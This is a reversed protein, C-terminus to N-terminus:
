ARAATRSASAASTRTSRRGAPTSSSRCAASTSCCTRSTARARAHAPRGRRGRAAHEVTEARGEQEHRHRREPRAQDLRRLVPRRDARRGRRPRPREDNPIVGRGDDFPVGPLAVGRYGVSRLVLGCPITERESPRSPASSARSTPSSSTASSRSRRSRATASSRSRRSSSACSSGARSARPSARPTSACCTSTAAPRARPADALAAESAPDLELDAPDVIVDAGALEGLEKLEPNTFAAQAPGRRGLM